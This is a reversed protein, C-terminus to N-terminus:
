KSRDSFMSWSSGKGERWRKQSFLFEGWPGKTFHTKMEPVTSRWPHPWLTWEPPTPIGPGQESPRTCPRSPPSGWSGLRRPHPDSGKSTPIQGPYRQMEWQTGRPLGPKVQSIQFGQQNLCSFSGLAAPSQVQGKKKHAEWQMTSPSELAWIHM